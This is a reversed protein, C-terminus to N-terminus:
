ADTNMIIIIIIIITKVKMGPRLPLLFGFSTSHNITLSVQLSIKFYYPLYLDKSCKSKKINMKNKSQNAQSHTQTHHSPLPHVQTKTWIAVEYGM